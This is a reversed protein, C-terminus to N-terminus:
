PNIGPKNRPITKRPQAASNERIAAIRADVKSDHADMKDGIRQLTQIVGDMSVAARDEARDMWQQWDVDRERIFVQWDKAQKSFWWMLVGILALCFVVFLAVFVGQEWATAPLTVGQATHIM